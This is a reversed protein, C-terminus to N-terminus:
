VFFHFPGKKLLPYDGVAQGRRKGEQHCWSRNSKTVCAYLLNVTEGAGFVVPPGTSTINYCYPHHIIDINDYLNM